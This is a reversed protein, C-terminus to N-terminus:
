LATLILKTEIGGSDALKSSNTESYFTDLDGRVNKSYLKYVSCQSNINM